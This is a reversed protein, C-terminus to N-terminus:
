RIVERQIEICIHQCSSYEQLDFFRQCFMAGRGVMYAVVALIQILRVLGIEKMNVLPFNLTKSSAFM